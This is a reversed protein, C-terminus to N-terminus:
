RGYCDAWAKQYKTHVYRPVAFLDHTTEAPQQDETFALVYNAKKAAREVRVDYKGNPYALFSVPRGLHVRLSDRSMAMEKDLRADPITRLDPPHSLTQSGIDFLFSRDVEVIQNWTMKPRGVKSGVFATHVFNTAPIKRAALIPIARTYFGEYGDAFTICVAKAPMKESGLLHKYLTDVSIFHAGRKTMWDLQDKLEAVTCDFWLAKADRKEIIDHYVLVPTRSAALCVIPALFIM